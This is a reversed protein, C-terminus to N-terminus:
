ASVKEVYLRGNQIKVPKYLGPEQVQEKYRTGGWWFVVFWQGSENKARSTSGWFDDNKM